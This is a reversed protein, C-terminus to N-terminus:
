DSQAVKMSLFHENPGQNVVTLYLIFSLSRQRNFLTRYDAELGGEYLERQGNGRRCM